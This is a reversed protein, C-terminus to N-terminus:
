QPREGIYSGGYETNIGGIVSVIIDRTITVGYSEIVRLRDAMMITGTAVGNRFDQSAINNAMAGTYVCLGPM